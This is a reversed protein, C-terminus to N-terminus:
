TGPTPASRSRSPRTPRPRGRRARTRDGAGAPGARRGPRLVGARPRRSDANILSGEGAASLQELAAVARGTQELGVVNVLIESTRSRTPPRRRPRHRQHRRRRLAGAAPAPRRQRGDDLGQQVGDYLRTQQRSSSDTSWTAPRTATWADPRPGRHRRQRLHRHRRLRGGPGHRPLHVRRDARGRLARRGDLQQHGHGPRRDAEGLHHLRGPGRHGRDDAGDVTVSSTTSTSRRTPRSTSWSRCARTPASSTASAPRTPPRDHRRRPAAVALSATALALVLRGRM